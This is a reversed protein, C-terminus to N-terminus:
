QPGACRSFSMKISYTAVKTRCANEMVLLSKLGSYKLTRKSLYKEFRSLSYAGCAAVDVNPYNSVIYNSQWSVGYCLDKLTSIPQVLMETSARHEDSGSCAGGILPM